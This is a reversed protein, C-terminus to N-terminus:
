NKKPLKDTIDITQEKETAILSSLINKTEEDKVIWPHSSYTIQKYNQNPKLTYYLKENGDYDIWYIEVMRSTKNNFTISTRTEGVLSRLGEQWTKNQVGKSRLIMRRIISKTIEEPFAYIIVERITEIEEQDTSFLDKKNEVIFQAIDQKWEREHSVKAIYVQLASVLVAAASVIVTIITSFHKNIFRRENGIKEREINLREQEIKIQIEQYEEPTM